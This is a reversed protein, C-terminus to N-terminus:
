AGIRKERRLQNIRKIMRFHDVLSIEYTNVRNFSFISYPRVYVPFVFYPVIENLFTEEAESGIEINIERTLM